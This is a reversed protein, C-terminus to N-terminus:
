GPNHVLLALPPIHLEFRQQGVSPCSETREKTAVPLRVYPLNHRAAWPGGLDAKLTATISPVFRNSHRFEACVLTGPMADSRRSNTPVSRFTM